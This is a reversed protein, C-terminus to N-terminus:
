IFAYLVRIKKVKDSQNIYTRKIEEKSDNFFIHYNDEEEDNLINIFRGFKNDAPIIEIEVVEYLKKYDNININLKTKINNNNKIIRMKQKKALFGFIRKLIFKSKINNISSQYKYKNYVNKLDLSINNSNM